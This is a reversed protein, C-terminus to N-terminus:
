IFIFYINFCILESQPLWMVEDPGLVSESQPKSSLLVFNVMSPAKIAHPPGTRASAEAWRTKQFRGEPNELRTDVRNLAMIVPIM